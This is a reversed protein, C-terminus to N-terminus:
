CTVCLSKFRCNNHMIETVEAIIIIDGPDVAESNFAFNFSLILSKKSFVIKLLNLFYQCDSICKNQINDLYFIEKTDDCLPTSIM